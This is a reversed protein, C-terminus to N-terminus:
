NALVRAKHSSYLISLKKLPLEGVAPTYLLTNIAALAVFIALLVSFQPLFPTYINLFQPAFAIFFVISKL